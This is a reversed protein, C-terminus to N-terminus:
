ITFFIEATVAECAGIREGVFLGEGLCDEKGVDTTIMVGIGM